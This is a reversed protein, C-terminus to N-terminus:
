SYCHEGKEVASNRGIFLYFNLIRFNHHYNARQSADLSRAYVRRYIKEKWILKNQKM